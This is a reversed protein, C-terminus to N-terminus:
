HQESEVIMDLIYAYSSSDAPTNKNEYHKIRLVNRVGQTHEYGEINDYFHQWEGHGQKLGEESYEIRRVQLCQYDGILPHNCAKTEPAVELFITEGTSGYKTEATATGKLIWQSGDEFGLTLTPKNSADQIQWTSAKTLHQGINREYRMLADDACMMMTSVVRAIEINSGEVRYDAGMANCLGSIGLSNKSFSLTATRTSDARLWQADSHGNANIAQDISWHYATLTTPKNMTDDINKACAVLSAALLIATPLKNLQKIRM